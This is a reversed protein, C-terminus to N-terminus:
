FFAQIHIEPHLSYDIQKTKGRGINAQDQTYLGKIGAITATNSYGLQVLFNRSRHNMSAGFHFQPYTYNLGLIGMEGCIGFGHPLRVEQLSSVSYQYPQDNYPERRLSFPITEDFFYMYNLSLNVTYFPTIDQSAVFWASSAEMQYIDPYFHGTKFHAGQLAWRRNESWDGRYRLFGSYMNYSNLMWPSTAFILRDTVGIGAAFNGLTAVGRGLSYSTPTLNHGFLISKKRDSMTFGSKTAPDQTTEVTANAAPQWSCIILLFLLFLRRADM